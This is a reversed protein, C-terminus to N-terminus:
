DQHRLAPWVADWGGIPGLCVALPQGQEENDVDLGNDLHGAITCSKFHDDAEDLQGGVMVAVTASDPPKAQYYLQNHGSYVRPLHFRPGYRAVAGAEGYNSTVIVVQSRDALPLSAHVVAIQRVYTPWGVSDQAAQNIAPVPTDGLASLPILPLGLVGSVAGNLAVAIAVVPRRWRVSRLIWEYAPVCGIAFLVAVLGFPYYFQSGMVFVLVLLAPFAVALFRIPRWDIRRLLSILGSVWIPVLPPGLILLLFPWMVIRVEGANNEALAGGMSLQPWNHTAQYVLNPFGIVLALAGAGVIWKSWLMRRPGVAIAGAALAALLVAVLLKNYLSLGVVAGAALWWQPQRRLQARIVFLLVAPWVPMDLTSTLLVHGMILPLAAFAYAWVCLTQAGRGGGMERTILALVFVSLVTALTAPVRIAWPEDDLVSSFFRALLPTLPPEDVYGWAPRLTRFYLEDRHYDYRSSFATLLVALAAMASFVPGRALEPLSPHDCSTAVAPESASFSHDRM